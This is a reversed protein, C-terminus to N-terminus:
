TFKPSFKWDIILEGAIFNCKKESQAVWALKMYRLSQRRHRSPVEKSVFSILSRSSLEWQLNFLIKM